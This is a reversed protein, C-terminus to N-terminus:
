MTVDKVSVVILLLILLVFGVANIASMYKHPFKRRTITEGIVIIMRGGDLAPLPLINFIALNISLVAVLNLVADYGYESTQGVIRAIGIPGSLSDIVSEGKGISALLMSLGDLTMLTMNYTREVGIVLADLVGADVYGISDLSVGLAKRDPIIGYVGTVTTSALAQNPLIYTITLPEDIHKRIFEAASTANVGAFSAKRGTINTIVSGPILGAKYAPSEPSSEVVVLEPKTVRAGYEPDDVSVRIEGYSIFIFVIVALVMNMVVGAVLTVLQAWWPRNGFARPDHKAKDDPEGNEGYIAVYGGLPLANFSYTTEGKKKSFLKPPFGFAFEDVRMGTLKAAIFHGFEHVIVLALLIVFFLLIASLSM